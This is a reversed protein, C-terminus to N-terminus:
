QYFRLEASWTITDPAPGGESTYLQFGIQSIRKSQDLWFSSPIADVITTGFTNETPVYKLVPRLNERSSTFETAQLETVLLEMGFITTSTPFGPSYWTGDGSIPVEVLPQNLPDFYNTNFGLLPLNSGIFFEFTASGGNSAKVYAKMTGPDIGCQFTISNGGTGSFPLTTLLTKLVVWFPQGNGVSQNESTTGSTGINYFGDPITLLKTGATGNLKYYVTLQNNQLAQSINQYRMDIVIRTCELCRSNPFSTNFYLFGDRPLDESRVVVTTYPPSPDPM